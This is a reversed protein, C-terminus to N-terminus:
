RDSNSAVPKRHGKGDLGLKRSTHAVALVHLFTGEIRYIVVYPFGHILYRRRGREDSPALRPEVNLRAVSAEVADLFRYGLGNERREYFGAAEILEDSAEPHYDLIM